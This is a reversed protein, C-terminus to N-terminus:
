SLGRMILSLCMTATPVFWSELGLLLIVAAFSLKSGLNAVSSKLVANTVSQGHNLIEVTSCM